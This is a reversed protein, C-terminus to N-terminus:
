FNMSPWSRRSTSRRPGLRTGNGSVGRNEDKTTHADRM